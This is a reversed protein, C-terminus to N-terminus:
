VTLHNDIDNMPFQVFTYIMSVLILCFLCFPFNFQYREHATEEDHGALIDDNKYIKKCFFVPRNRARYKTHHNRIEDASNLKIIFIYYRLFIGYGILAIGMGSFFFEDSNGLVGITVGFLGTNM